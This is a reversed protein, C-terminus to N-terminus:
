ETVLSLSRKVRNAASGGENMGPIPGERDGRMNEGDRSPELQSKEGSCPLGPGEEGKEQLGTELFSQIPAVERKGTPYLKLHSICFFDFATSNIKFSCNITTCLLYVKGPKVVRAVSESRFFILLFVTWM